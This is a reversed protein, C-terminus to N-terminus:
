LFVPFPPLPNFFNGLNVAVGEVLRGLAGGGGVGCVVWFCALRAQLKAEPDGDPRYLQIAPDRYEM